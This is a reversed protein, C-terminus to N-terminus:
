HHSNAAAALVGGIASREHVGLREFVKKAHYGATNVTIGLESAVEQNSLGRAMLVAVERQQPSLGLAAAGQALRLPQAALRSLLLAVARQGDGGTVAHRRFAFQGWTTRVLHEANPASVVAALVAAVFRPLTERETMAQAPAIANGHALRVLRPWNADAYLLVGTTEDLVALGEEVVQDQRAGALPPAPVALAAGLYHLVSALAQADTHSFPADGAGRYLSLQGLPRGRHRVIAYLFHEIGLPTLVDRYYASAREDADVSRRSLPDAAACRELYQRRFRANSHQDHYGAMREPELMREAYLNTISGREDCFFFGAHTAPVLQRLVPLLSPLLM